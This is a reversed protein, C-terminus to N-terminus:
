YGQIFDEKDLKAQHLKHKLLFLSPQIFIKPHSIHFHKSNLKRFQGTKWQSWSSMTAPDWSSCLISLQSHHNLKSDPQGEASCDLWSFIWTLRVCLGQIINFLFVGVVGGGWQWHVPFSAQFKPITITAIHHDFLLRQSRELSLHERPFSTEFNIHGRGVMFIDQFLPKIYSLM